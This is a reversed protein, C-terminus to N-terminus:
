KWDIEGRGHQKLYENALKFHNCGLFGRHASLPSPHPAKLINHRTSDIEIEKKAAFAGWLMFVIHEHKESLAKIVADTFLHWGYDAHSNALGAKVTLSANLLLVGQKAWRTLDPNKGGSASGGRASNIGYELEIEKFINQLSPPVPNTSETSFSLGHAVGPTHYPDQGLIVVKTDKPDFYDFARFIKSPHPFVSSSLYEKKVKATLEKFYPKEFEASVLEKWSAPIKINQTVETM